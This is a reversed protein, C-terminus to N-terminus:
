VNNAFKCQLAKIRSWVQASMSGQWVGMILKTFKPNQRAKLEVEDIFKEGHESLLDELPGAALNSLITESSDAELIKLIFEWAKQPKSHVLEDVEEWAWLL